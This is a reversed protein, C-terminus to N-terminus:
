KSQELVVIKVGGIGQGNTHQCRYTFNGVGPNEIAAICMSGPYFQLNGSDPKYLAFSAPVTELPASVGDRTILFNGPGAQSGSASNSRFFALIVVNGSGRLNISVGTSTGSSAAAAVQTAAADFLQGNVILQQAALTRATLTGDVIVDGRIKLSYSVAGDLRRVGDFVFGGTQGDISGTVGFQVSQGNISTGYTTLTATHGAQTTSLAQISSAQTQVQGDIQSAYASLNSIATAQGAITGGQGNPRGGSFHDERLYPKM